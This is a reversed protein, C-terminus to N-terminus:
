FIPMQFTDGQGPQVLKGLIGNGRHRLNAQVVSPMSVYSKTLLLSATAMQTKHELLPRFLHKQLEFLNDGIQQNVKDTLFLLWAQM